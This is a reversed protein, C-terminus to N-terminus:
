LDSKLASRVACDKAELLKRLGAMLEAEDNHCNVMMFDAMERFQRSVNQLHEDKLHEWRFYRNIFRYHRDNAM